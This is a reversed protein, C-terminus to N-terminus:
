AADFRELWARAGPLREDDGEALAVFRRLAEAAEGLRELRVLARGKGFYLPASDPALALAHEYCRLAEDCRGLRTCVEAKNNWAASSPALEVAKDFYALADELRGAQVVCIGLNSWAVHHRPDLQITRELAIKARAWEGEAMYCTALCHWTHAYEPERALAEDYSVIADRVRGLAVLSNGRNSWTIPDDGDLAIARDYDALAREHQGQDDLVRGRSTLFRRAFARASVGRSAEPATARAREFLRLALEDEGDELAQAGAECLVAGHEARPFRALLLDVWSDFDLTQLTV